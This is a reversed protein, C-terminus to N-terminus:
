REGASQCFRDAGFAGLDSVQRIESCTFLIDQSKVTMAKTTFELTKGFEDSQKLAFAVAWVM